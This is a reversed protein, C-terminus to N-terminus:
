FEKWRFGRIHGVLTWYTEGAKRLVFEGLSDEFRCIIDGEQVVIDDEYHLGCETLIVSQWVDSKLSRDSPRETTQLINADDSYACLRSDPPINTPHLAVDRLHNVSPCNEGRATISKRRQEQIQAQYEETLRKKATQGGGFPFTHYLLFRYWAFVLAADDHLEDFDLGWIKKSKVLFDGLM